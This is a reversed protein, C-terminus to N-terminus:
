DIWWDNLWDTLDILIYFTQSVHPKGGYRKTTIDFNRWLLDTKLRNKLRTIKIQSWQLQHQATHLGYFMEGFM